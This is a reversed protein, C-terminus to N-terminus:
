YNNHLKIKFKSDDKLQYMIIDNYDCVIDEDMCMDYDMSADIVYAADMIGDYANNWHVAAGYFMGALYIKKNSIDVEGNESEDMLSVGDVVYVNERTDLFTMATLMRNYEATESMRSDLVLVINKDEPIEDIVANMKEMGEKVDRVYNKVSYSNIFYAGYISNVICPLLIFVALDNKTLKKGARMSKKLRDALVIAYGIMFFGNGANALFFYHNGAGEIVQTAGLGSLIILVGYFIMIEKREASTIECDMYLILFFIVLIDLYRLVLRFCIGASEPVSITLTLVMCGIFFTSMCFLMFERHRHVFRKHFIAFLVPFLFAAVALFKVNCIFYYFIWPIMKIWDHAQSFVDVRYSSSTEVTFVSYFAAYCCFFCILFDILRIFCIYVSVKYKNRRMCEIVLAAIYALIFILAAEKTLYALFSVGALVVSLKLERKESEGIRFILYAMWLILPVYLNEAMYLMSDTMVPNYVIVLLVPQFIDRNRVAKKWMLYIPMMGSSLMLINLIKIVKLQTIKGHLLFAPSIAVQYLINKYQPKSGFLSIRGLNIISEAEKLYRLEDSLISIIHPSHGLFYWILVTAVWLILFLIGYTENKAKQM